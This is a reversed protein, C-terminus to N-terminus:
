QGQPLLIGTVINSEDQDSTAKFLAVKGAGATKTYAEDDPTHGTVTALTIYVTDGKAVDLDAPVVFQREEIATQLAVMDGSDGSAMTVGLWNEVVAVQYNNVTYELTVTVAKGDSEKYTDMGTPM